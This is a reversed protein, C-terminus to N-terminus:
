KIAVSVTLGPPGPLRFFALFKTAKTLCLKDHNKGQKESTVRKEQIAQTVKFDTLGESEKTEM